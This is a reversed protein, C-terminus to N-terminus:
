QSTSENHDQNIIVTLDEWGVKDRIAIWSSDIREMQKTCGKNALYDAAKNGKRRVHSFIKYDIRRLIEALDQVIGVTRWSRAVQEWENGNNLKRLMEVTIQSDGEIELNMYGNRVVIRLGQYVAWLEEENNNM